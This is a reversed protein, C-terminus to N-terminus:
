FWYIINTNNNIIIDGKLLPIKHKKICGKNNTSKKKYLLICQNNCIKYHYSTIIKKLKYVIYIARYYIM